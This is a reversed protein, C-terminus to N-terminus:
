ENFDVEITQEKPDYTLKNARRRTNWDAIADCLYTAIRKPHMICYESSCEVVYFVGNKYWNPNEEKKSKRIRAPNGCFPCPKLRIWKIKM